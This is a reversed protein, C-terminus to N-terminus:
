MKLNILSEQYAKIVSQDEGEVYYRLLADTGSARILFWFDPFELLTGELLKGEGVNCVKTPVPIPKDGSKLRANLEDAVQTLSHGLSAKEALKKFFEVTLDRRTIGAKQAKEREAGTLSEDYLSVDRRNFFRNRINNAAIQSCYYNAL